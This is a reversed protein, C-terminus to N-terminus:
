HYVLPYQELNELSEIELDVDLTPWHLHTEHLLEVEYVDSLKANQFWPYDTYNLFYEINYVLLWIGFRSTHLEIHV